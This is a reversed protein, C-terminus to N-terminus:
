CGEGQAIEHAVGEQDSWFYVSPQGCFLLVFPILRSADPLQSLRGLMAARKAHDYAGIGDLSLVTNQPDEELLTRLLHAM